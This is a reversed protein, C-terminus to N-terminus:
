DSIPRIPIGLYRDICDDTVISGLHLNMVYAKEPHNICLSSTQYYTTEESTPLDTSMGFYVVPFFLRNGNEDVFLYGKIGNYEPLYIEDGKLCYIGQEPTSSKLERNFRNWCASYLEDFDSKTPIRWTDGWIEAAADDEPDLTSKNDSFGEYGFTSAYSSLVYKTFKPDDNATYPCNFWCFKSGEHPDPHRESRSDPFSDWNSGRWSHGEIDGWSFYLGRCAEIRGTASIAGINMTAWKKGAIRVFPHGNIETGIAAPAVETYDSIGKKVNIIVTFSQGPVVPIFETVVAKISVTGNAFKEFYRINSQPITDLNVAKTKSENLLITFDTQQLSALASAPSIICDIHLLDHGDVQVGGDSYAPIIKFSQIMQELANVRGVLESVTTELTQVRGAIADIKGNVSAISDKLAQTLEGKCNSIATQIAAKYEARINAKATDVAAKTSALETSLRELKVRDATGTTDMRARLAAFESDTQTKLAVLKADMQAATYYAGFQSNVWSKVSEATSAISQSLRTDLAGIKADVAALEDCTAMNEELTSVTANVWATTAYESLKGDVYVKLDNIKGGITEDANELAEIKKALDDADKQLGSIDKGLAEDTKKLNEIEEKQNKAADELSRIDNRTADLGSITSNIGTIQESITAITENEADFKRDLKNLQDYLDSCSCVLGSSLAAIAFKLLIKKMNM